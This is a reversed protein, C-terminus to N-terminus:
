YPFVLGFDVAVDAVEGPGSKGDFLPSLLGINDIERIFARPM